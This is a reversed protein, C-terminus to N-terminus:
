CLLELPQSVMSELVNVTTGGVNEPGDETEVDVDEAGEDEIDEVDSDTLGAITQVTQSLAHSTNTTNLSHHYDSFDPVARSSSSNNFISGPSGLSGLSRDIRVHYPVDQCGFTEQVSNSLRCSRPDVCAIGWGLCYEAVLASSPGFDQHVTMDALIKGQWTDWVFTSGRIETSVLYRGHPDADTNCFAINPINSKHGRLIIELNQTSRGALPYSWSPPREWEEPGLGFELSPLIEGAEPEHPNGPSPNQCLAFAFVSINHTNSSVAILRANKHVALGWASAGVNKLLIARVDQLLRFERGNEANQDIANVISRTTFAM